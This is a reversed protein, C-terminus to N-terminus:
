QSCDGTQAEKASFVAHFKSPIIAFQLHSRLLVSSHQLYTKTITCLSSFRKRPPLTAAKAQRDQGLLTASGEAFKEERERHVFFVFYTPAESEKPYSVLVVVYTPSIGDCHRHFASAAFGHSSARYILRWTQKQQGFWANLIRQYHSKDQGLYM